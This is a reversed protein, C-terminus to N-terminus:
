PAVLLASQSAGNRSASAPHEPEDEEGDDDVVGVCGTFGTPGFRVSILESGNM